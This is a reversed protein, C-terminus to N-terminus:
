FLYSARLGGGISQQQGALLARTEAQLSWRGTGAVQLGLGLDASIPRARM